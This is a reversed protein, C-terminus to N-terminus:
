INKSSISKMSSSNDPLLAPILYEQDQYASSSGLFCGCFFALSFGVANALYDYPDYVNTMIGFGDTIEFLEVILLAIGAIM